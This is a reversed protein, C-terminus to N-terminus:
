NISRDWMIYALLPLPLPPVCRNVVTHTTSWPDCTSPPLALLLAFCPGIPQVRCGLPLWPSDPLSPFHAFPAHFYLQLSTKCDLFCFPPRRRRRSHLARAPPAGAAVFSVRASLRDSSGLGCVFFCLDMRTLQTNKTKNQHAKRASPQAAQPAISPGAHTRATTIHHCRARRARSASPVKTPQTSSNATPQTQRRTRHASERRKAVQARRQTAKTLKHATEVIWEEASTIKRLWERM